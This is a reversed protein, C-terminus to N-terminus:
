GLKDSNRPEIWNRTSDRRASDLSRAHRFGGDRADAAVAGLYGRGEFLNRARDGHFVAASESVHAVAGGGAHQPDPIRLREAHFLAPLLLLDGDDGAAANRSVDLHVTGRGADDDPVAHRLFAAAARQRSVARPVDAAGRGGRPWTDFLGVVAFPLTKGLMLEIPRIPTVMLQEMTGIEKERVIAMATLMLTVMMIINAVVGPVFYNRSHCIPISGSARRRADAPSGGDAGARRHGHTRGVLKDRQNRQLKEVSFRAIIQRAYSSVISATNSNTGDVLVQVATTRGRAVDRAFGPLVRVVAEREGRDLLAQGEERRQAAGRSCRVPGVRPIRGAARPEGAHPGPGDLRNARTRRGPEGRLRFRDVAGDAARVAHARM